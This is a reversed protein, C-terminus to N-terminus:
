EEAHRRFHEIDTELTDSMFSRVPIWDDPWAVLDALNREKSV